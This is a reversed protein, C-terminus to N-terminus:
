KENIIEKPEASETICEVILDKAQQETLGLAKVTSILKIVSSKAYAKMDARKKQEIDAIAWRKIAREFHKSYIQEDKTFEITKFDLTAVAKADLKDTVVKSNIKAMLSEKVVNAFACGCLVMVIIITKKM